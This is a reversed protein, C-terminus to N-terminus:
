KKVVLINGRVEVVSVNGHLELPEQNLSRAKWDEGAVKVYGQNPQTTDVKTVVAAQGVLSEANALRRTKGSFRSAWPRSVVVLLVSSIAFFSLHIWPSDTFLCLLATLAAGAGIWLFFFSATALELTFLVVAAITWWVAPNM